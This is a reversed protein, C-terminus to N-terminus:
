GWGRLRTEEQRYLRLAELLITQAVDAGRIDEVVVNKNELVKYDVFFRQIERFTHSPLQSVDTYDSFAPDNIHVAIIKDDAQGEDVMQMVGIARAQILTMPVVPENGLVLVDLPDGDDCYSRPVFGYNSPYIVSSYLIRDVRLMGSPKDLEYKVKSGKPIEIVANFSEHSTDPHNPLDHWPHAM